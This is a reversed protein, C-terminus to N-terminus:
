TVAKRHIQEILTAALGGLRTIDGTSPAFPEFFRSCIADSELVSTLAPVAEPGIRGLAHAAYACVHDQEAVKGIGYNRCVSFDKLAEQLAPVAARAQPGLKGLLQVIQGRFESDQDPSRGTWLWNEENPDSNGRTNEAAARFLRMLSPVLSTLQEEQSARSDVVAQLRELLRRTIAETM